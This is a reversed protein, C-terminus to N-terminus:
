RTVPVRSTVSADAGRARVFYLGPRAPSGSHNRGTWEFPHEGPQLPGHHLTAIRAGAVDSVTVRVVQASPVVISFRTRGSSPSPFPARGFALAGARLDGPTVGAVQGEFCMLSLGSVGYEPRLALGGALDLGEIRRFRGVHDGYDIIDFRDGPQPTFGSALTIRLVGSPILFDEVDLVDHDTAPATGGLEVDVTGLSDVTLSGTFTFRGIPGGPTIHGRHAAIITSVSMTGAGSLIGATDNVFTGATQSFTRNVDIALTGRNTFGTGAGSVTLNADTLTITGTNLHAANARTLGLPSLVDILGRNDLQADIVRSGAPFSRLTAGPANVLTFCGPATNTMKLTVNGFGLACALDLTGHNTYRDGLQFSAAATPTGEIRLNAGPHNVLTSDAPTTGQLVLKGHNDIAGVLTTVPNKLFTGHNVLSANMLVGGIPSVPSGLVVSGRNEVTTADLTFAQLDAIGNAEVAFTNAVDLSAERGFLTQAGSTAGLTLQHVTAASDLTVTYIGDLTIRAHDGAGPVTAPLWNVADHWRGGAPENWHITAALAVPAWALSATLALFVLVRLAIHRM